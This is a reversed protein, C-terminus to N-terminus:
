PTRTNVPRPFFFLTEVLSGQLAVTLLFAAFMRTTVFDVWPRAHNKRVLGVVRLVALGSRAATEGDATGAGGRNGRREGSVGSLRPTKPASRPTGPTIVGGVGGETNARAPADGAGSSGGGTDDLADLVAPLLPCGPELALSMLEPSSALLQYTLGLARQHCAAGRQSRDEIAAVLLGEDTILEGLWERGGAAAGGLRPLVKSGLAALAAERNSASAGRLVALLASLVAELEDDSGTSASSSGGAPAASSDGSAGSAASSSGGRGPPRPRLDLLLPLLSLAKAVAAEAAAGAGAGARSSRREDPQSAAGGPSQALPSTSSTISNRRRLTNPFTKGRASPRRSPSCPSSAFQTNPIVQPRHKEASREDCKLFGFALCIRLARHPVNLSAVFVASKAALYMSSCHFHCRFQYLVCTGFVLLVCFGTATNHQVRTINAVSCFLIPFFEYRVAPARYVGRVFSALVRGGGCGIDTEALERLFEASTRCLLDVGSVAEQGLEQLFWGLVHGLARLPPLLLTPFM